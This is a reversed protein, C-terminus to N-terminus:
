FRGNSEISPEQKLSAAQLAVVPRVEEGRADSEASSATAIALNRLNIAANKDRDLVAGCDCTWM